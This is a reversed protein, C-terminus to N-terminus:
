NVRFLPLASAAHFRGRLVRQQARLAAEAARAELWDRRGFAFSGPSAGRLLTEIRRIRCFDQFDHVEAALRPWATEILVADDLRGLGPVWNPILGADHEIYGVVSRAASGAAENASEWDPDAVMDALCVGRELQRAVYAPVTGARGALARAATAVQDATLPARQWGLTSMIGNFGDLAQAQLEVAGVHRRRGRDASAASLVQQFSTVNTENENMIVRRNLYSAGSTHRTALMLPGAPGTM